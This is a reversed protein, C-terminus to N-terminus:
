SGEENTQNALIDNLLAPIIQELLLNMVPPSIGEGLIDRLLDEEDICWDPFKFDRPLGMFIM